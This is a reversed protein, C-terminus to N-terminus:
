PTDSFGHRIAYRVLGAPEHIKLKTKLATIQNAVTKSSLKFHTAIEKTGIGHSLLVLIERERPSLRVAETPPSQMAQVLRTSSFSCFYTNGSLVSDIAERLVPISQKKSVFGNIGAALADQVVGEQESATLMLVRAHSGKARIARVVELGTGDPLMWDILLLDPNQEICVAVGQAVSGASGVVQMDGQGCIIDRLLDRVM